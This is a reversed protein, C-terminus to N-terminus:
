RHEGEPHGQTEYDRIEQVSRAHRGGEFPTELWAGVMDHVFDSGISDASLCLVNSDNHRRALSVAEVSNCLAARVSRVKNAAISMGSGSGCILLGRENEGSAVSEGVAFALEPYDDAEPGMCGRDKVDHGSQRLWNALNQKPSVGRHDAGIAIKL